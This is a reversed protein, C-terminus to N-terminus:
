KHFIVDILQRERVKVCPRWDKLLYIQKSYQFMYREFTLCIKFKFKEINQCLKEMSM